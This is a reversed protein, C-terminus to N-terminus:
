GRLAPGLDDQQSCDVGAAPRVAIRSRVYYAQARSVCTPPGDEVYWYDTECVVTSRGDHSCNSVDFYEDGAESSVSAAWRSIAATGKSLPMTREPQPRAIAAAPTVTMLAVALGAACSSLLRPRVVHMLL